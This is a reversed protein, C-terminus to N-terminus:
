IFNGQDSCTTRYSFLCIIDAPQNKEAKLPSISKFIAKIPASAMACLRVMQPCCRNHPKNTLFFFFQPVCNKDRDLSKYKAQQSAAVPSNRSAWVPSKIRCYFAMQKKIVRSTPLTISVSAHFTSSTQVTVTNM